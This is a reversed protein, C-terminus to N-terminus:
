HSLLIPVPPQALMHKTAGGLIFERVRSHGYAGMVLLDCDHARVASELVHGIGAGAADVAEVAADIGHRALHTALEAGSRRPDLVKENTVTVVHVRKAKALLPLADAIARAAPRSYDWAVVVTDLAFARSRTRAHSTVITPHGSGFIVSEAYPAHLLGAAPMPVITLDRLRAHGVLVAHVDALTCHELLAEQFVGRREASQQFAKLLHEAAATSRRSEAGALAPVNILAHGLVSGPVQVDVACAVGSIGAGLAAAIDVADDVASDPTPEPYTTVAVLIDKFQM